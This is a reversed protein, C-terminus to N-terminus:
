STQVVEFTKTVTIVTGVNGYFQLDFILLGEQAPSTTVVYDFTGHNGKQSLPPFDPVCSIVKTNNTSFCVPGGWQLSLNVQGSSKWSGSLTENQSANFALIYTWTTANSPPATENPAERGIGFRTGAPVPLFFPTRTTSISHYYVVSSAVGAIVM